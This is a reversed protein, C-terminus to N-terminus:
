AAPHIAREGTLACSMTALITLEAHLAVREGELIRLPLLPSKNKLLGFCQRDLPGATRGKSAVLQALHKGRWPLLHSWRTSGAGAPELSEDRAPVQSSAPWAGAKHGIRDRASEDCRGHGEDAPLAAFYRGLRLAASM